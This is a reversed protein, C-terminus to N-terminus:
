RGCRRNPNSRDLQDLIGLLRNVQGKGRQAPLHDIVPDAALDDDIHGIKEPSVLSRRFVEHDAVSVASKM